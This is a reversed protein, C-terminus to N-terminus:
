YGSENLFVSPGCPHREAVDITSFLRYDGVRHRYFDSLEGKLRKINPRFHLERRLLPSVVAVIRRHVTQLSKNKRLIKRFSETEAISYRSSLPTNGPRKRYPSSVTAYEVFNAISRM